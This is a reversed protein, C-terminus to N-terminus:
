LPKKDLIKITQKYLTELPKLATTNTQSWTTLCYNIHSMVMAHMYIKTAQMSLHSRIFCFNAINFKVRSCVRKVQSKFTLKSDILVGLYKYEPVVQIRDGSVYVDPEVSSSNSRSFFMAVTKTINLKLCCQNLWATVHVM